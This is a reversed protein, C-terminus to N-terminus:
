FASEAETWRPHLRSESNGQHPWAELGRTMMMVVVSKGFAQEQTLQSADLSSLSLSAKPRFKGADGRHKRQSHNLLFSLAEQLSSALSPGLPKM